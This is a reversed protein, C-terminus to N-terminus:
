TSNRKLRGFRAGLTFDDRIGTRRERIIEAIISIAIEEPTEAGIAMGLPAHVEDLREQPIGAEGLRELTAKVRRRSGIMGVFGCPQLLAATVAEEDFAHGRTVSILYCHGDLALSEIAAKFPKVIIADAQPFRERNAFSARDDIVTVHFGLMAGMACLPIAIHGAGVIILRQAGVIPDVFLRPAGSADLHTIPKLSGTSDFEFLSPIADTTCATIQARAAEPLEITAGGGNEVAAPDIFSRAGPPLEARAGPDVVTLLAVPASRGAADALQRAIPLDRAPSWIDVFVDMIGGCTGIEKQDFDGTLDVEALRAGSGEELLIRAKRFVEAEGCGGGITGFQGDDRVIMKAGVERPTSGRVNVVTALAFPKGSELTRVAEPWIQDPGNM